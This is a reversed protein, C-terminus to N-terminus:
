QDVPSLSNSDTQTLIMQEGKETETQKDTQRDRQRCKQRCTETQRNTWRDAETDTETSSGILSIATWKRDVDMQTDRARMKVVSRRVQRNISREEGGMAEGQEKGRRCNGEKVGVGWEVEVEVM